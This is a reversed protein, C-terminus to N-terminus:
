ITIIPKLLDTLQKWKEVSLEQARIKQNLDLKIFIKELNSRNKKGVISELNKILMKRRNAFGIKVIRFFEESNKVSQHNNVSLKIIASDVKPAPWFNLRSVQAVIEAKAYYQVAVSLLSMDGAEACIRDAVEKQVMLVMIEPPNEAELFFRIVSSTIQYPLNAVVKYNGAELKLNINQKLINGWVIEINPYKKIQEEWYASIKKEIEFALVKKTKAALVFTLGGFGPGIEVVSDDASLDSIDIMKEVPEFNILFNQGYHKSPQLNYKGCLHALYDQNFLNPM